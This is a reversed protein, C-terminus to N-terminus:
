FFHQAPIIVEVWRPGTSLILHTDIRNAVFWLFNVLAVEIFLCCSSDDEGVAEVWALKVSFGNRIEITSEVIALWTSLGAQLIAVVSSHLQVEPRCCLLLAHQNRELLHLLLILPVFVPVREGAHVLLLCMGVGVVEHLGHSGIEEVLGLLLRPALEVEVSEVWFTSLHNHNM